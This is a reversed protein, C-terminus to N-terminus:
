YKKYFLLIYEINICNAPLNWYLHLKGDNINGFLNIKLNDKNCIENDFLQYDKCDQKYKKLHKITM